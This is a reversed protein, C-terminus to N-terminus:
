ADHEQIMRAVKRAMTEGGTTEVQVIRSGDPFRLTTVTANRGRVEEPGPVLVAFRRRADPGSWLISVTVAPGRPTDFRCEAHAPAGPVTVDVVDPEEKRFLAALQAADVTRCADPWQPSVPPRREPVITYWRAGAAGTGLVRGGLATAAGKRYPVESVLGAGPGHEADIDHVVLFPVPRAAPGVAYLRGGAAVLHAAAVRARWLPRGDALAIGEVAADDPDDRSGGHAVIAVGDEVAADCQEACVEGARDALRRGDPAFVQFSRADRLMTVGDRVIPAIGDGPGIGTRALVRGTGADLIQVENREGCRLVVAVTTRDGAVAGAACGEPLAADWRVKGTAVDLATVRGRGGEGAAPGTTTRGRRDTTHGARRGNTAAERASGTSVPASGTEPPTTLLVAPGAATAEAEATLTARWRM